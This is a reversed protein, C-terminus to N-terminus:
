DRDCVDDEGDYVGEYDGDDVEEVGFGGVAAEFFHVFDEVFRATDQVDDVDSSWAHCWVAEVLVSVQEDIVEIRILMPSPAANRVLVATLFRVEANDLIFGPTLM